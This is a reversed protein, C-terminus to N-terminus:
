DTTKTYKVIFRMTWAAENASTSVNINTKDVTIATVNTAQDVCTGSNINYCHWEIVYQINSIGHEVSKYTNNPGSGYNVIKCYVPKNHVRETTRYEVGTAMPPNVWEWEGWTNGSKARVASSKGDLSWGYLLIDKAVGNEYNTVFALCRWWSNSIPTDVSSLWWGNANINLLSDINQCGTGLGYGAPAAGVDSATPLWTDPRAGVEAATPTWTNPRAGVDSATLQVVGTKSNVSDVPFDIANLEDKTAYGSLDIESGEGGSLQAEAIKNTVFSQTAYNEAPLGGLTDANIVEATSDVSDDSAYM